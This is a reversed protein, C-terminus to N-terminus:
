SKAIIEFICLIITKAKENYYPGRQLAAGVLGADVRRRKAIFGNQDLYVSLNSNTQTDYATSTHLKM